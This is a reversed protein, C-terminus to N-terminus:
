SDAPTDTLEICAAPVRPVRYRQQDEPITFRNRPDRRLQETSDEDLVFDFRSGTKNPAGVTGTLRRLCAPTITTDIRGTRGPLIVPGKAADLEVLRAAAAEQLAILAGTESLGGVFARIEALTPM